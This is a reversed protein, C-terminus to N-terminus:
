SLNVSQMLKPQNSGNEYVRIQVGKVTAGPNVKFTGEVRQYLKFSLLYPAVKDNADPLTVVGRKNDQLVNVVFQLRGQFEKTRQGTQMVLLRYRYEGPVAEPSVLARTLSIEGDKGAPAMLTRFFALDEKLAANEDALSKVQKVLSEHSAAQIQLQRAAASAEARLTASEQELKRFSEEMSAREREVESQHFGAFREGFGYTWWALTLAVVVVAVSGAIRLYWPVHTRVAVRPAAIGFRRRLTRLM